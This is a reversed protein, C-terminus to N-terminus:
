DDETYNQIRKRKSKKSTNKRQSKKNESRFLDEKAKSSSNFERTNQIDSFDPKSEIFNTDANYYSKRKRNHKNESVKRNPSKEYNTEEIYKNNRKNLPSSDNELKLQTERMKDANHTNSKTNGSLTNGKVQDTILKNSSEDKLFKKNNENPLDELENLNFCTNSNNINNINFNKLNNSAQMSENSIVKDNSNKIINESKKIINNDAANLTNYDKEKNNRQHLFREENIEKLHKFKDFEFNEFNKNDADKNYANNIKRDANNNNLSDKKEKYDANSKLSSYPGLIIDQNPHVDVLYKYTNNDNGKSKHNFFNDNNGKNYNMEDYLKNKYSNLEKEEHTNKENKNNFDCDNMSEGPMYNYVINKSANPLKRMQSSNFFSDQETKKFSNMTNKNIINPDNIDNNYLKGSKIEPVYTENNKINPKINNIDDYPVILSNLVIKNSNEDNAANNKNISENIHNKKVEELSCINETNFTDKLTKNQNTNNVYFYYDEEQNAQNKSDNFFFNKKNEDFHLFVSVNEKKDNVFSGLFNADTKQMPRIKNGILNTNEIYLEDKNMIYGKVKDKMLPNQIVERQKKLVPNYHILNSDKIPMKDKDYYNWDDFDNTNVEM